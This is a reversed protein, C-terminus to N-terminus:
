DVTLQIAFGRLVVVVTLFPSVRARDCGLVADLDQVLVAALPLGNHEAMTPLQRGIVPIRLHQEEEIVAIAEDAMVAAAVAPGGLRAVAMVHVVVCVIKSGQRRVEIQLVSNAHAVGGAAPLPRTIESSVALARPSLPRSGRLARMLV